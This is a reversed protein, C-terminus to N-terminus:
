GVADVKRTPRRPRPQDGPAGLEFVAVLLGEGVVVSVAQRDEEGVTLCADGLEIQVMAAVSADLVADALGLVAAQGIQRKPGESM